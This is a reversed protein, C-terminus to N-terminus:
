GLKELVRLLEREAASSAKTAGSAINKLEQLAAEATRGEPQAKPPQPKPTQTKPPVVQEQPRAAHSASSSLRNAIQDASETLFHLEDRLLHGKDILKELDDGSSRATNKLGRIGAEARGVTSNFEIIFREMDARASRMDSLQKSLKIAFHIGVALLGILAIDLLISLFEM